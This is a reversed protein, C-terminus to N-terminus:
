AISMLNVLLCVLTDVWVPHAKYTLAAFCHFRFRHLTKCDLWQLLQIIRGVFLRSRPLSHFFSCFTVAHNGEGYTSMLNRNGLYGTFPIEGKGPSVRRKTHSHTTVTQNPPLERHNFVSAKDKTTTQCPSTISFVSFLVLFVYLLDIAVCHFSDPFCYAGPANRNHLITAEREEGRESPKYLM